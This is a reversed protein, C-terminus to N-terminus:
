YQYINVVWIKYFDIESSEMKAGEAVCSQLAIVALHDYLILVNKQTNKM